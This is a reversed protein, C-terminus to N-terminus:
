PPVRSNYIACHFLQIKGFALDNIQRNFQKQCIFSISDRFHPPSMLPAILQRMATMGRPHAFTYSERTNNNKAAEHRNRVKNNMM